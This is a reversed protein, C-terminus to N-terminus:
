KRRVPGEEHRIQHDLYDQRRPLREVRLRLGPVPQRTEAADEQTMAKKSLLGSVAGPHPRVKVKAM